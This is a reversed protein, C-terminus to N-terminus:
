LNGMRIGTDRGYPPQNDNAKSYSVYYLESVIGTLVMFAAGAVFVGKRVKKCSHSLDSLYKTHYANRVSAALLCVGAIFFFVRCTIFLVIPWARSGSPRMAECCCLCRSAVMILIQSAILFLLSGVGLGTAIDEKLLGAHGCSSLLDVFMIDDPKVFMREMELLLNFALEGSGAIALGEIMANLHDVRKEKIWGQIFNTEGALSKTDSPGEEGPAYHHPYGIQLVPGPDCEMPNSQSPHVHYSSSGDAAGSSWLDQIAKLNQGEAELKFKLHKNLDGLHREKKRLDEMQEVMIQTKRQRALTLAGELQKELNQLEKVSLPGLDEGLLHRQTRQLSEYKAKLKTVEHYWGQTEREIASDQPAICCRQYRELTKAVHLENPFSSYLDTLELFWFILPIEKCQIILVLEKDLPIASFRSSGFDYVKGRSSFIILAIEADCLVSLEHAKKMLGHRRKSFTVQRNIKNEIMKLEVRGRGM